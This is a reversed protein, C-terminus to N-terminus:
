AEHHRQGIGHADARRRRISQPDRPLPPVLGVVLEVERGREAPEDEGAAEVAEEHEVVQQEPYALV